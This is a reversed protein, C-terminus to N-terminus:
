HEHPGSHLGRIVYQHELDSVQQAIATITPITLTDQAEFIVLEDRISTTVRLRELGTRLMILDDDRLAETAAFAVSRSPDIDLPTPVLNLKM